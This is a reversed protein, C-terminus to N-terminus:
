PLSDSSQQSPLLITAPQWFESKLAVGPMCGAWGCRKPSVIYWSRGPALTGPVLAVPLQSAPM